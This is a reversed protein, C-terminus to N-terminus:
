FSWLLIEMGVHEELIKGGETLLHLRNRSGKFQPLVAEIFLIHHFCRQMIESALYYFTIYSRGPESEWSARMEFEAAM